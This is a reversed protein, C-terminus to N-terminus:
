KNVDIYSYLTYKSINFFKSVKDGSKTILFIGASNLYKIATIKEEKTMLAVPKGILAIASALLEDLLNNVNKPADIPKHNNEEPTKILSKIANDITLFSTIDYNISLVYKIKEKKEDCFYLNSSKLIRGDKTKVLYGLNDKIENINKNLSELIVQYSNDGIQRNGTHINEFYIINNQFNNNELDHILVECNNGFHVVMSHAIQKLVEISCYEM